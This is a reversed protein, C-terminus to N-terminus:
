AQTHRDQQQRWDRRSVIEDLAHLAAPRTTIELNLQRTYLEELIRRYAPGQPLGRELLDEGTVLPPPAVQEHPIAALREALVRTRVLGEPQGTLRLTALDRLLAFAPHAMLRKLAALSPAAPDDLDAQHEVLWVVTERQENSCTLARCIQGVEGPPREALLVALSLEFPAAAPLRELRACAAAMAGPSWAAGPWLHEFLAARVMLEVARARSAHTLMRELEERVRERAVRALRAAQARMAEFTRPEITFDLRAAFRVARLLRLHDEEFREAPEGICRILRAALDVRGGVYDIVVDDLPDFFMGNVTFDRRLADQQADGFTVGVPHRGDMYAGDSRFTAVEVWRGRSRVLVVGFQVGVKRTPAFLACVREPVADTAVDYDEPPEGRLLDRVCGGALLAQHGAARLRRIVQVAPGAAAPLPHGLSTCERTM